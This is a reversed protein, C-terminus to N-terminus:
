TSCCLTAAHRRLRSRAKTRQMMLQWRLVLDSTAGGVGWDIDNVGKSSGWNGKWLNVVENVSVGGLGKAM